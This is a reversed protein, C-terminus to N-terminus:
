LAVKIAAMLEHHQAPKLLYATAGAEIAQDRHTAPDQGSLVIVPVKATAELDRLRQLVKFGDGCPLGLDLLVLDPPTQRASILAAAGDGACAVFFDKARMRIALGERVDQDDEVILINKKVPAHEQTLERIAESLIRADAPKRFVRLAGRSRAGEELSEGDRGTVVISPTRTFEPIDRIRELLQLGDGGPLGLDLLFLDPQFRRATVLATISDEATAVEFECGLLVTWGLRVDADDEVILVRKKQISM